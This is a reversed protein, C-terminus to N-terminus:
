QDRAPFARFFEAHITRRKGGDGARGSEGVAAGAAGCRGFLRLTESIGAANRALLWHEGRELGALVMAPSGGGWVSRCLAEGMPAGAGGMESLGEASLGM